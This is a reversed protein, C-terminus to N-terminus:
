RRSRASLVFLQHYLRSHLGFQHRGLRLMRPCIKRRPLRIWRSTPKAAFRPPSATLPKPEPSIAPSATTTTSTAAREVARHPCTDPVATGFSASVTTTGDNSNYSFSGGSCNYTVLYTGNGISTIPCDISITGAPNAVTAGTVVFDTGITMSGGTSNLLMQSAFARNAVLALALAITFAIARPMSRLTSVPRAPNREVSHVVIQTKLHKEGSRTFKTKFSYLGTGSYSLSKRLYRM